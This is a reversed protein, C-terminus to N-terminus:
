EPVLVSVAQRRRKVELRERTVTVMVDQLAKNVHDLNGKSEIVQADIVDQLPRYQRDRNKRWYRPHDRRWRQVREVHEPGQFYRQNESKHLWRQQSAIKSARQCQTRSCYRQQGRRRYDPVFWSKCCLCKHKRRGRRAM